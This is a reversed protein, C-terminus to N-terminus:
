TRGIAVAAIGFCLSAVALFLIPALFWYAFGVGTMVGFVVANVIAIARVLGPVAAGRRGVILDIVGIGIPLVSFTLSFGSMLDRMSRVFGAGFDTRTDRMLSLLQREVENEGTAGQLAVHGALHVLGLLILVWAGATFLKMAM